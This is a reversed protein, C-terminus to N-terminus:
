VIKNIKYSVLFAGGFILAVVGMATLAQTLSYVDAVWGIIPIISAYLLKGFFSEVSLM